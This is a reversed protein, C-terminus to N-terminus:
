AKEIPFYQILSFTLLDSRFLPTLPDLDIGEMKLTLLHM